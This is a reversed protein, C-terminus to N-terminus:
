DSVNLYNRGAVPTVDILHLFMQGEITRQERAM